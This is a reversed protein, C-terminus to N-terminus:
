AREPNYYTCHEAKYPCFRCADGPTPRYDGAEARTHFRAFDVGIGEPDYRRLDVPLLRSARAMYYLGWTTEMGIGALIAARYVGLQYSQKPPKGTKYDVINLQGHEDVVVADPIAVVPVGGLDTEIRAELFKRDGDTFVVLQRGHTRRWEAFDYVMQVGAALWWNADERGKDAARWTSLDPNAGREILDKVALDWAVRWANALSGLDDRLDGALLWEAVSHFATGGASWVSPREPIREVYKLRFMEPCDQYTSLQSYSRRRVREPATM